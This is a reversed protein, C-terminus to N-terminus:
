TKSADDMLTRWFPLISHKKENFVYRCEKKLPDVGLDRKRFKANKLHKIFAVSNAVTALGCDFNNSQEIISPCKYDVRPFDVTGKTEQWDGFPEQYTFDTSRRGDGDNEKKAILYSACINLFLRLGYKKNNKTYFTGKFGAHAKELNNAPNSNLLCWGAIKDDDGLSLPNDTSKMGEAVYHDLVLFPNILVISAWHVESINIMLVVFKHELLDLNADIYQIIGDLNGRYCKQDIENAIGEKIGPFVDYILSVKHMIYPPVVHLFGNNKEPNRLLFACLFQVHDTNM